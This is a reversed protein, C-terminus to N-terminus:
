AKGSARPHHNLRGYDLHRRPRPRRCRDEAPDEANNQRFSDQASSCSGTSVFLVKLTVKKYRFDELAYTPDLKVPNPFVFVPM